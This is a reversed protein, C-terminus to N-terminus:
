QIDSNEPQANGARFPNTYTRRVSEVVPELKKATTRVIIHKDNIETIQSRHILLGTETLSMIIGRKVNLQEIVFSQTDASYDEVKGLKHKAEDIVSMGILSFGAKYLEEVKIVDELGVFEEHSDVIMGISSVERIDNTMLFSPHDSLLPGEVEYAIIKLNSPDILPRTIHALKAGTQLGLVPNKDLQSGLVLM